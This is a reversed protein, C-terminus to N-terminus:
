TLRSLPDTRSWASEFTQGQRVQAAQAQATMNKHVIGIRRGAGACDGPAIRSPIWRPSLLPINLSINRTLQTRLSVERAIRKFLRSRAPRREFTLAKQIIRM